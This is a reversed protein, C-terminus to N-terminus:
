CKRANFKILGTLSYWEVGKSTDHFTIYVKNNKKVTTAFESDFFDVDLLMNYPSFTSVEDIHEKTFILSNSVNILKNENKNYINASM